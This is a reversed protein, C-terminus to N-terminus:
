DNSTHQVAEHTTQCENCHEIHDLLADMKRAIASEPQERVM